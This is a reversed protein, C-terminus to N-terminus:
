LGLAEAFRGKGVARSRMRPKAPDLTQEPHQKTLSKLYALVEDKDFLLDRGLRVHPISLKDVYKRFTKASRNCEDAMESLTLLM